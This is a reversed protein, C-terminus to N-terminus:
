SKEQSLLRITNLIYQSMCELTFYHKIENYRNWMNNFKKEDINNLIYPLNEIDSEHISICFEKYNLIDKYPLWEIDDYIYIPIAGLQFIEFFRFSSHGYGRPALAFKSNRTTDIFQAAENDSINLNWTKHHFIFGDKNKLTELMKIRIPHTISGVFSCLINKEKYSLKPLYTVSGTQIDCAHSILISKNDEYILPIPITGSSAGFIVTNEPLELQIPNCSQVVTFYKTDSPYKQIQKILRDNLLKRNVNFDASNEVNTWLCDIYKWKGLNPNKNSFYELFYEELYKGNKFIPHQIDTDNKFLYPLYTSSIPLLRAPIIINSDLLELDKLSCFNWDFTYSDVYQSRFTTWINHNKFVPMICKNCNINFFVAIWSMTSNSCIINKATRLISYAETLEGDFFSVDFKKFYNIYIYDNTNEIEKHVILIPKESNNIIDDYYKPHIALNYNIFDEIRLHIVTKFKDYNNIPNSILQYSYHKEGTSNYFIDRSHTNIYQMLMDRFIYFIDSHQFYGDFILNKDKYTPDIGKDNLLDDKWTIFTKDDITISDDLEHYVIDHRYLIKFLRSAMFQFCNNGFRGAPRVYISPM